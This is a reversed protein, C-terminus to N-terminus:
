AALLVAIQARADAVAAALVRLVGAYASPAGASFREVADAAEAVTFAGIGRASGKLAHALPAIAAVEAHRMREILLEAQRDFLRLVEQELSHDGLAMARLRQCDIPPKADKPEADVTSVAHQSM